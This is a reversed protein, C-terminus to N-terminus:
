CNEEAQLSLRGFAIQFFFFALIRVWAVWFDYVGLCHVIKTLSFLPLYFASIGLLRSIMACNEIVYIIDTCCCEVQANKERWGQYLVILDVLIWWAQSTSTECCPLLVWRASSPLSTMLSFGMPKMWSFIEVSSNKSDGTKAKCLGIRGNVRQPSFFTM